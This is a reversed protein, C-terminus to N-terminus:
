NTPLLPDSAPPTSSPLFPDDDRKPDPVPPVPPVRKAGPVPPPKQPPARDPLPEAEPLEEEDDAAPEDAVDPDVPETRADVKVAGPKRKSPKLRAEVTPNDGAGVEVTETWAAYGPAVIRLEHTGAALELRMPAAGVDVGDVEIRAGEIARVEVAGRLSSASGENTAPDPAAEPSPITDSGTRASSPAPTPTTTAASAVVGTTEAGSPMFTVMAAAAGALLALAGLAVLWRRRVPLSSGVALPGSERAGLLAGTGPDTVLMAVGPELEEIGDAEDPEHEPGDQSPATMPRARAPRQAPGVPRPADQERAIAVRVVGDSTRADAADSRVVGDDTRLSADSSRKARGADVIAAARGRPPAEGARPTPAGDARPTPASIPRSPQPLPPVSRQPPTPRRVPRVLAAASADAPSGELAARLVPKTWESSSQPPSAEPELGRDRADRYERLERRSEADAAPLGLLKPPVCEFLAETIESADAPRRQPDKELCQHVLAILLEPVNHGEPLHEGLPKPTGHVHNYLLAGDNDGVIPSEGALMLYFLVGIAYVDVRLDVPDGKIQEPALYGATGIVHSKTVEEDDGEVLKALGFDLLKVFNAKGDRECLMINAPKIDRLMIGRDHAYGVAALIQAAIPTFEHLALRGRRGLFRRLPEGDLYEMAIFAQDGHHGHELLQVVNPHALQQLRTGERAFRTVATGDDLWQPALLKIVVMRQEDLQEALYVLGMGGRGIIRSVRYRDVLTAGIIPDLSRPKSATTTSM